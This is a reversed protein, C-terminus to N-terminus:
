ATSGMRPAGEPSVEEAAARPPSGTPRLAGEAPQRRHPDEIAPLVVGDEPGVSGRKGASLGHESSRLYMRLPRRGRRDHLRRRPVEFSAGTDYDNATKEGDVTVPHLLRRRDGPARRRQDQLAPARASPELTKKVKGPLPDSASSTATSICTPRPPSPPRRRVPHAPVHPLHWAPGAPLGNLDGQGRTKARPPSGSARSGDLRAMFVVFVRTQSCTEARAAAKANAPSSADAARDRRRTYAAPAPSGDSRRPCNDDRDVARCCCPGPWRGPWQGAPYQESVTPVVQDAEGHGRPRRLVLSHGDVDLALRVVQVLSSIRTSVERCPAKGSWRRASGTWGKPAPSGARTSGPNCLARYLLLNTRRMSRLGISLSRPLDSGTVGGRGAAGAGEAGRASRFRSSPRPWAGPAAAPTATELRAPPRTGLPGPGSSHVGDERRSSRPRELALAATM